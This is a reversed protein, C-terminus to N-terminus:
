KGQIIALKLTTRKHKFFASKLEHLAYKTKRNEQPSSSEVFIKWKKELYNPILWSSLNETGSHPAKVTNMWIEKLTPLGISNINLNQRVTPLSPYYNNWYHLTIEYKDFLKERKLKGSSKAKPYPQSSFKQVLPVM